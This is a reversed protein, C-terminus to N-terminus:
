HGDFDDVPLDEGVGVVQLVDVELDVDHLLDVVFVDHAQQVDVLRTIVHIDHRLKTLLPIHSPVQLLLLPQLLLIRELKQLLNHTPKLIQVLPLNGM